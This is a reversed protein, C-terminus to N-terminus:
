IGFIRIFERWFVSVFQLEWDSVISESIKYYRYIFAIYLWAIKEISVTKQCPISITQKSFRDIVIYVNDFRNKDISFSKFDM